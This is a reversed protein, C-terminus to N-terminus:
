PHLAQIRCVRLVSDAMVESIPLCNSFQLFFGYVVVVSVLTRATQSSCAMPQLTFQMTTHASGRVVASNKFVSQTSPSYGRGATM